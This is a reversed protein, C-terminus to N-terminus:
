NFTLTIDIVGSESSKHLKSAKWMLGDNKIVLAAAYRTLLKDWETRASYGPREHAIQDWKIVTIKPAPTAM